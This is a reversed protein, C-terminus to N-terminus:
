ASGIPFPAEFKHAKGIKTKVLIEFRVLGPTNPNIVPRVKVKAIEPEKGIQAEAEAALSALIAYVALQKGYDTIGVGYDPMHAFAGKRTVLRRYIRKRLNVIGEDFAYDGRDDISITGLNVANMPDPLSEKAASLTQANAIDRSLPSTQVQPPEIRKFVAIVRATEDVIESDLDFAIINTFRVDYLAPHPTMPRDLTIDIFRGYQAYTIGDLVSTLAVSAVRVDRVPEGDLGFSGDVKTVTYKYLHAADAPDLVGSFYVPMDFELRLLNERIASVGVFAIDGSGGGSGWSGSGWPASGWAGTFTM